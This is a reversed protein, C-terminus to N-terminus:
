ILSAALVLSSRPGLARVLFLDGVEWIGARKASIGPLPCVSSISAELANEARALHRHDDFHPLAM